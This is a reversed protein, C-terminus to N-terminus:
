EYYYIPIHNKKNINTKTNETRALSMKLDVLKKETSETPNELLWAMQSYLHQIEEVGTLIGTNKKKRAKNYQSVGGSFYSNHFCVDM